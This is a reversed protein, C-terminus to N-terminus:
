WVFNTPQEVKKRLQNIREIIPAKIKNDTIKSHNLILHELEVLYVFLMDREKIKELEKCFHMLQIQKEFDSRAQCWAELPTKGLSIIQPLQTLYHYEELLKNEQKKAQEHAVREILKQKQVKEVHEKQKKEIILQEESKEFSLMPGENHWVEVGNNGTVAVYNNNESVACEINGIRGIETKVNQIKNQRFINMIVFSTGTGIAVFNRPWSDTRHEAFVYEHEGMEYLSDSICTYLCRGSRTDWVKIKNSFYQAILYAGDRSYILSGITETPCELCRAIYNKFDFLIIVCQNKPDYINAKLEGILTTVAIESGAPSFRADICQKLNQNKDKFLTNVSEKFTGSACISAFSERDVIIIGNQFRGASYKGYCTLHAYYFKQCYRTSDIVENMTPKNFLKGFKASAALEKRNVFSAVREWRDLYDAIIKCIDVLLGTKAWISSRREEEVMKQVAFGSSSAVVQTIFLITFLLGKIKVNNKM